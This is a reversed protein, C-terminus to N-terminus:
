EQVDGIAKQMEASLKELNSNLEVKVDELKKIQVEIIEKAEPISKKVFRKGGVDVTLKESLLKADVFMGRGLHAKIEQDKKGVLEDLGHSLVTMEKLGEEVAQLQQQLQEAHQQFMQLKFMVEQQQKEDM